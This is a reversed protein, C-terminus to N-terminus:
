TTIRSNDHKYEEEHKKKNTLHKWLYVGIALVLYFGAVIAFGLWSSDWSSNLATAVTISGFLLFFLACFVLAIIKLVNSAIEKADEKLNEKADEIERQAYRFPALIAGVTKYFFNMVM